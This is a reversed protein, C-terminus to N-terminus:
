QTSAALVKLLYEESWGARLRKGKIGQKATKEQRLLNLALHRLVAFNEAAMGQRIRSADENFSVDLCWHVPNEIGWHLRVANEIQKANGPLSSIYSRTEITVHEGERRELQVQAVSRLSKWQRGQRLDGLYRPDAITWCDRIELRGHGKTITRVHDHEMEAFDMGRAWEFLRTVDEALGKQNGKLALVYDGEAAVIQEAIATQTGAADITVICGKLDLLRLLEPIATIENSKADTAVQGLVLRNASAWASVMHLAAKGRRKDHSRRLTKGDIAIVQGATLVNVAQVWELFCRQFEAADLAAFVRGFTDHSPIGKPLKLFRSFWELKTEGFEAVEVWGEAGCVVACIAILVIDLLLHEKTRDVRPDPLTAFSTALPGLSMEELAIRM